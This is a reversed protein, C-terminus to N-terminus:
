LRQLHWQIVTMTTAAEDTKAHRWAARAVHRSIRLRERRVKYAEIVDTLEAREAQWTKSRSTM